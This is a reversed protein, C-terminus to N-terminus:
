LSLCKFITLWERKRQLKRLAELSKLTFRKTSFRILFSWPFKRNLPRKISLSYSKDSAYQKEKLQNLRSFTELVFNFYRPWIPANRFNPSYWFCYDLGRRKVLGLLLLFLKFSGLHNILCQPLRNSFIQIEFNLIKSWM